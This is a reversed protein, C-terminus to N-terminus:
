KRGTHKLDHGLMLWSSNALGGLAGNIAYINGDESGVYITGDSGIAPSFYIWDGACGVLMSVIYIGIVM